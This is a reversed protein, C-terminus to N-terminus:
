LGSYIAKAYVTTLHSPDKLLIDSIEIRRGYYSCHSFNCTSILGIPEGNLTLVGISQAKYDDTEKIEELNRMFQTLKKKTLRGTISIQPRWDKFNTKLFEGIIHDFNEYFNWEIKLSKYILSKFASIKELSKEQKELDGFIRKKKDEFQTVFEEM